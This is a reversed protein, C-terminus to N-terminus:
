KGCVPITESTATMCLPTVTSVAEMPPAPTTPALAPSPVLRLKALAITRNGPEAVRSEELVSTFLSMGTLNGGPRALSQVLGSQVPDGGHDSSGAVGLM